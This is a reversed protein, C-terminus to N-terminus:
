HAQGRDPWTGLGMGDQRLGLRGAESVLAWVWSKDLLGGTVKKFGGLTCSGQPKLVPSERSPRREEWFGLLRAQGGLEM